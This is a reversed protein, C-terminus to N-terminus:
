VLQLFSSFALSGDSWRRDILETQLTIPSQVPGSRRREKGRKGRFCQAKPKHERAETSKPHTFILSMLWTTGKVRNHELM